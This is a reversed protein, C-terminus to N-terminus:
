KNFIKSKYIMFDGIEGDQELNEMIYERVKSSEQYVKDEEDKTILLKTNSLNSIQEILGDEGKYGMNGLFPLDFDKNNLKLPSMYAMARYSVVKVDIDKQHQEQIYNCMLEIDKKDEEEMITGYFINNEQKKIKKFYNQINVGAVMIIITVMILIIINKIINENKFLRTYKTIIKDTVILMYVILIYMAATNHYVNVIPYQIFLCCVGQILLFNLNNNIKEDKTIIKYVVRWFLVMLISNLISYMTEIAMNQKFEQIGLVSYSIFGQLNGKIQMICVTMVLLVLFVSIEIVSNIIVNRKNNEHCIKIINNTMIGVLYYLGINQKTFTILYIIIGQVFFKSKEKINSNEILIGIMVITLTLMTYNAGAPINRATFLYVIITNIFARDKSMNIKKFLIYTVLFLGSFICINYMKFELFNAGFMKFLCNGIIFFIPTQIVNTDKYIILGNYMKYINSFNWLEDTIAFKVNLAYISVGMAMIIFVFIQDHKSITHKIKQYAERM